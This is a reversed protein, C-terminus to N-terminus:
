FFEVLFFGTPILPTAYGCSGTVTTSSSLSLATNEYDNRFPNGDGRWGAPFLCSKSVNVASITHNTTGSTVTFVGSQVSKVIGPAFEIVVARAAPATTANAKTATVTTANTLALTSWVWSNTSTTDNSQWGLFVVATRSTDVAAITATATAGVGDFTITIYQISRILSSAGWLGVHGFGGLPGVRDAGRRNM